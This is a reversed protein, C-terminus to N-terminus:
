KGALVERLTRAFDTVRYPKPISGRFGHAQYNAMVPDSSYGSSVIGRASPDLRLIEKMASAGGKGGPVTLDFIVVDFPRGGARAQLFESVAADGDSTVVVEMGLRNLLASTMDRISEEDDMFLVRGKMLDFPSASAVVPAPQTRAAPLWVRFTAGRGHESEVTVHGHHKQVVSYVTALGLGTGHEKTTFFPEFIRGLNEPSIGRGGDTIELRVYDGEPLPPVAGASLIENCLRLRIVGGDPMAQMANIVLNQVVQGIQGKDADAPRVDAALDFECKVTSGHLAFEAAERVLDPLLVSSRVPEGGKAFTLLQQTLERARTTGREAERLWRGGAAATKEDLLALTLNGMVIALLNNFDHAIGGALLGVSELKSTRLIETEFRSKETVDRMVFVAGIGRGSPDHMPACRGDVRRVGGAHVHLETRPPLDVPAGRALASAVPALVPRHQKEETLRCIQDIPLGMASDPSWGTLAGAAGNMYQVRGAPDTTIVGETMAGLTVVLRAREAALAAEAARIDTIDLLVTQSWQYAPVGDIVPVSWKQVVHRPRYGRESEFVMEAEHALDGRWLALLNERRAASVAPSNIRARFSREDAPAGDGFLLLAATNITSLRAKALAMTLAEPQAAFHEALDTVGARRWEDLLLKTERFDHEIVAVPSQELLMRFRSESAQLASEASKVGTLDIFALQTREFLPEDGDLPVWWRQYVTHMSGDLATLRMEGDVLNRGDWVALLAERRVVVAEPTLIRALNASVEEMSHAAFLQLAARNMGMILFHGLLKAAEAPNVIMWDALDTVGEARLEALRKMTPRSDIEVIAVPSHEFLHRHRQESARLAAETKRRATIDSVFGQFYLLRGQPDRIARVNEKIWITTGDARRVESEFDTVRDGTGLAALFEARRTPSVYLRATDAPSLKLLDEASAFGLMRAMAPNASRFGGEAPNEYVGEVANEFLDRFREESARLERARRNALRVLMWGAGLAVVVLAAEVGFNLVSGAALTPLPDGAISASIPPNM